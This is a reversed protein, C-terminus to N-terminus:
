LVPIRSFGPDRARSRTISGEVGIAQLHLSSEEEVLILRKYTNGLM